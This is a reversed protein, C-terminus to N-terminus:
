DSLGAKEKALAIAMAESIKTYGRDYGSGAKGLSGSAEVERWEFFNSVRGNISEQGDIVLVPTGDVDYYRGTIM